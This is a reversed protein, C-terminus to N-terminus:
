IDLRRMVKKKRRVGEKESETMVRTGEDEHILVSRHVNHILRLKETALLALETMDRYEAEAAFFELAAESNVKKLIKKLVDEDNDKFIARIWAKIPSLPARYKVNYTRSSRARRYRRPVRPPPPPVYAM